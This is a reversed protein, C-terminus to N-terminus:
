GPIVYNKWAQMRLMVKRIIQTAKASETYIAATGIAGGPVGLPLDAQDKIRLIVAYQGPPRQGAPQEPVEGSPNLQGEASMLVISDVTAKLTKGPYLQLVVESPQGPKVYRIFIQNIWVAMKTQDNVVYNLVSGARVTGVRQGPRLTVGTTYGDAPAVVTTQDM